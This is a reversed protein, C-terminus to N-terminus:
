PPTPSTLEPKGVPAFSTDRAFAMVALTVTQGARELAKTLDYEARGGGHAGNCGVWGVPVTSAPLKACRAAIGCQVRFLSTAKTGEEM